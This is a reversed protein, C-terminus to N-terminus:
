GLHGVKVFITCGASSWPAHRSGHPSRLGTGAPYAGHEDEFVGDIVVIEEGGWHAHPTFVTGPAWRVLATHTTGFEALPLVTLGPVLGPRWPSDGPRVVVRASDAPDLHGLKVFLLCGSRSAPAHRSGVPNKIYTGAPYSGLDDEFVGALVLIEEGGPHEHAAFRAGPAYEVLSTARGHEAAQRELPKRRIAPAPSDIWDLAATDICVRQAFDLNLPAQPAAPANLPNM